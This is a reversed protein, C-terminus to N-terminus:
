EKLKFAVVYDGSPLPSTFHGGAAVVVYQEGEYTYSMPVSNATAPLQYRWLEEGNDIDLARLYGDSAAGIFILGSATIMPGGMQMGGDILHYFPWPVMHELTGFPIQWNIKGSELDIAALTAWPPASCPIGLPSTIPNMIVCYPSDQQPFVMDAPCDLRPVLKTEFSMHMTSAFMLKRQPDVAPSGWNNGGLPSPYNVTGKLSPPTYIPGTTLAELKKRCQGEDWFTLGWADDPTMGLQHLHEPLVPFPQTPSLVLDPFDPNQPVPREEVPFLPQGTRRDLIFIFGMKTAQALAPIKEGDRLLEVRDVPSLTDRVLIEVPASSRLEILPPRRDVTLRSEGLSDISRAEGQPNSTADDVSSRM